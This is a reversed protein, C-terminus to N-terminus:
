GNSAAKAKSLEDLLDLLEMQKPQKQILRMRARTAPTMGFEASLSQMQKICNNAIQLWVGQQQYGNPTVSVEGNKGERTESLVQMKKEAKVWRAFVTCYMELTTVDLKSLIGLKHLEPALRRWEAKGDDPLRSPPDPLISEISIEDGHRDGRFTGHLRHINSPM